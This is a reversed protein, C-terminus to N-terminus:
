DDVVYLLPPSFPIARYTGGIFTVQLHKSLEEAIQSFAYRCGCMQYFEVLYNDTKFIRTVFEFEQLLRTSKCNYCYNEETFQISLAGFAEELNTRITQLDHVSEFSTMRVKEPREM